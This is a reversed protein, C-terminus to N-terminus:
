YNRCYWPQCVLNLSDDWWRMWSQNCQQSDWSLQDRLQDRDVLSIEAYSMGSEHFQQDSSSSANSARWDYWCADAFDVRVIKLASLAQKDTPTMRPAFVACGIAFLILAAVFVAIGIIVKRSFM